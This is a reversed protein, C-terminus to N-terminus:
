LKKTEQSYYTQIMFFVTFELLSRVSRAEGSNKTNHMIRPKAGYFLFFNGYVICSLPKRYMRLPVYINYTPVSKEMYFIAYRHEACKEDCYLVAGHRQKPLM